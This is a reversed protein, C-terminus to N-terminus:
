DYRKVIEEILWDAIIRHGKVTPHEGPVTLLDDQNLSQLRSLIDDSHFFNQSICAYPNPIMKFHLVDINYLSAVGDIFLITQNLNSEEWEHSHSLMLWKKHFDTWMPDLDPDTWDHNVYLSHIHKNFHADLKLHSTAYDAHWWSERSPGTLGSLILTHQYDNTQALWNQLQWRMHGISAAPCAFMDIKAGFYEAVLNGYVHKLRYEQNKLFRLGDLPENVSEPDELEAGYACSCGLILIRKFNKM